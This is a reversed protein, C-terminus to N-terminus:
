SARRENTSSGSPSIEITLLAVFRIGEFIDRGCEPLVTRRGARSGSGLSPPLGARSTLLRHNSFFFFFFRVCVV